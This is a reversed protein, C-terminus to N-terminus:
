SNVAGSRAVKQRKRIKDAIFNTGAYFGAHYGVYYAGVAIGITYVIIAAIGNM